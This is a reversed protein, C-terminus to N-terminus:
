GARGGFTGASCVTKMGNYPSLVCEVSYVGGALRRKVIVKTWRECMWVWVFEKTKLEPIRGVRICEARVVERPDAPMNVPEDINIM